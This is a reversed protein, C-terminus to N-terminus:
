LGAYVADEGCAECIHNYGGNSFVIKENRSYGFYYKDDCIIDKDCNDCNFPIEKDPDNIYYGYKKRHKKIVVNNKNRQYFKLEM